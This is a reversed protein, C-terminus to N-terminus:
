VRKTTDIVPPEGALGHIYMAQAGYGLYKGDEDWVDADMIAWGGRARRLSTAVLVWERETDDILYTTLDLSPGFFRYQGPGLARHMATPMTDILPPLALRDFRGHEDRQPTKYRFWRSYRAPGAEFRDVWYRDGEALRSEVQHYFRYRTFPNNEAGDDVPLSDALARVTTPFPRTVIDPGKRERLYTATVTMGSGNDSPDEPDPKADRERLTIHLQASAGGRRLISVDVILATPRIPTCFITTASMLRMMPAALEVEAARLAVSTLVGGSPVLYDWHNPMDLHYRGPVSPDRRVVTDAALDASM